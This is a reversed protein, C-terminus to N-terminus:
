KGHQVSQAFSSSGALMHIFSFDGSPKIKNILLLKPQTWPPDM